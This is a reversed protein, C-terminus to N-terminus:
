EKATVFGNPTLEMASMDLGMGRAGQAAATAVGDLLAADARAQDMAAELLLAQLFLAEAFRQKTADDAAALEPASSLARAAQARVAAFTSKSTDDNRRHSAQWADIWWMAYADAVNDIRMGYPAILPAMREIIDGQAFLQELSRASEPDRQRSKALFAALNAERRARSPTYRLTAPKEDTGATPGPAGVDNERMQRLHSGLVDTQAVSPILITWGWGDIPAVQAPASAPTALGLALGFALTCSRRM